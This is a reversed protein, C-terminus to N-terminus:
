FAFHPSYVYRTGKAVSLNDGAEWNEDNILLKCVLDGTKASSEFTWEYPSINEMPIGKEWSLGGGEGRIFLTNGFGVDVQAVLTTSQLKGAAKKAASKKVPAKKAAVKKAPAKKAAVKKAPMKKAAVKKSTKKAPM